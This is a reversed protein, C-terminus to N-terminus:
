TSAERRSTRGRVMYWALAVAAVALPWVIADLVLLRLERDFVYLKLVDDFRTGPKFRHSAHDVEFPLWYAGLRYYNIHQLYFAATAPDEIQMGRQQLLDVQQKYTTALKTFARKM